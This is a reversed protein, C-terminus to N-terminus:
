GGDWGEGGFRGTIRLTQRGSGRTLRQGWSSHLPDHAGEWGWAEIRIGSRAYAPQLRHAVAEETLPPLELRGRYADDEFVSANILITLQAGEAALAAVKQLQVEVPVVVAKLLSGWPYNITIWDARGRLAEPLTDLDAQAFLVNSRGGRAPKRSARWSTERLQQIAPELGVCFTDPHTGAHRYVFRGDGAGIDVLLRRHGELRAELTELDLVQTKKGVVERM